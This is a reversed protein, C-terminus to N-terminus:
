SALRDPRRCACLVQGQAVADGAITGAVQFPPIGAQRQFLVEEDVVAEQRARMVLQHMRARGALRPCGRAPLLRARYQIEDTLAARRMRAFHIRMEPM